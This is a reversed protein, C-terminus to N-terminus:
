SLQGYHESMVLAHIYAYAAYHLDYEWLSLNESHTDETIM